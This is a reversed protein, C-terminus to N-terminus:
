SMHDIININERYIKEIICNYYMQAQNYSLSGLFRWIKIWSKDPKFLIRSM